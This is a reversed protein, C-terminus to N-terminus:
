LIGTLLSQLLSVLGPVLGLILNWQKVAKKTCETLWPNDKEKSLCFHYRTREPGSSTCQFILVDETISYLCENHEWGEEPLTRLSTFHFNSLWTRSKTVGQVICDVSNELGSYQLPYGNGEGPSRELGPILGLNEVNCTSEKGASVCPFGM